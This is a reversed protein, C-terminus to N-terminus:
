VHRGHWRYRAHLNNNFYYLRLFISVRETAQNPLSYVVFQLTLQVWGIVLHGQIKAGAKVVLVIANESSTPTFVLRPLGKTVSRGRLFEVDGDM